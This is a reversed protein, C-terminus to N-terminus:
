QYVVRVTSQLMVKSRQDDSTALATVRFLAACDIENGASCDSSNSKDIYCVFEKIYKM